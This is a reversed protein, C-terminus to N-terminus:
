PYKWPKIAIGRQAYIPKLRRQMEIVCKVKAIFPLTAMNRRGQAKSYQELSLPRPLTPKM